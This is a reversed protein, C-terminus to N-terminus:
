WNVQHEQSWNRNRSGKYGIVMYKINLIAALLYQMYTTVLFEYNQVKFIMTKTLM